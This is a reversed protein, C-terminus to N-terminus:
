RSRTQTDGDDTRRTQGGLAQAQPRQGPGAARHAFREGVPHLVPRPGDPDVVRGVEGAGAHGRGHDLVEHAALPQGLDDGGLLGGGLDLDHEGVRQFALAQEVQDGRTM